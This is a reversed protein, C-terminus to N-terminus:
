KLNKFVVTDEEAEREDHRGIVLKWAFRWFGKTGFLTADLGEPEGINRSTDSTQGLTQLALEHM